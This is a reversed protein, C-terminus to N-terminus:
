SMHEAVADIVGDLDAAARAQLSRPALRPSRHFGTSRTLDLALTGGAATRQFPRVRRNLRVDAGSDGTVILVVDRAPVLALEDERVNTIDEGALVRVQIPRM